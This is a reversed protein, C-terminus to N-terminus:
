RAPRNEEFSLHPHPRSRTLATNLSRHSRIPSAKTPWDPADVCAPAIGTSLRSFNRADTRPRFSPPQMM